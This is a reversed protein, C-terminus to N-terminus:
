PLPTFFMLTVLFVSFFRPDSLFKQARRRLRLLTVKATSEKMSLRACVEKISEGQLYRAHLLARERETLTEFFSAIQARASEAEVWREVNSTCPCDRLAEEPATRSMHRRLQETKDRMRYDCTKYLWAKPNPHTRLTDYARYACLFVDQVCEEVADDYERRYGVFRQCFRRLSQANEQYLAQIFRTREEVGIGGEKIRM